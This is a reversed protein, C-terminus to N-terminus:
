ERGGTRTRVSEPAAPAFAFEQLLFGPKKSLM